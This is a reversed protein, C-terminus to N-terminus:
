SSNPFMKRLFATPSSASVCMNDTPQELVVGAVSMSESSRKWTMPLCFSLPLFHIQYFTPKCEPPKGPLESPLSAVQWYLLYLLCLNSGQTPFIGQFLFHCGVGTHKGPFDWPCLLSTPYLRPDCLTPCSQSLMCVCVCTYVLLPWLVCVCMHVSLTALATPRADRM